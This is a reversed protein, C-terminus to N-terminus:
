VLEKLKDIQEITLARPIEVILEVILDGRIPHNVDWLGQQPIRFQTGPQSGRPIVIEFDKNDLSKITTKCGIIADVANIMTKAHLNLGNQTFRSDAHIRFEVYLDGPAATRIHQEGHGPYRMQMNGQVGRPIDVQVTRSAGSPDKIDVHKVQPQLTSALDLDIVIRLDRNRPQQKFSNGFPHGQFRTGFIENLDPGFNFSFNFGGGHQEFAQQQEWQARRTPDTLTSYAEQIEQFKAQDGGRDPHHQMALKKYAMKIQDESASADVGLIKYYDKM